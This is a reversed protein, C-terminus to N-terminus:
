KGVQPRHEVVVSDPHVKETRMETAMEEAHERSYPGYRYYLSTPIEGAFRLYRRIWWEQSPDELTCLRLSLIAM